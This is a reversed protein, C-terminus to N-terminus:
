QVIALDLATKADSMGGLNRVQTYGMKELADEAIGARRGSKCYLLIPTEKNPALTMIQAVIDDYPILSAGELHGSQFEDMTRTDVLVGQELWSKAMEDSHSCGVLLMLGIFITLLKRM